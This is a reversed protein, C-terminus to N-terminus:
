DGFNRRSVVQGFGALDLVLRSQRGGSQGVPDDRVRRDWWGIFGDQEGNDAM